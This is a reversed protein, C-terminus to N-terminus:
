REKERLVEPDNVEPPVARTIEEAAAKKLYSGDPLSRWASLAAPYDDRAAAAFLKSAQDFRERGKLHTLTWALAGDLDRRAWSGGHSDLFRKAAEPTGSAEAHKCVLEELGGFSDAHQAGSVFGAAVLDERLHQPAQDWVKRVEETRSGYDAAVWKLLGALFRTRQPSAPLGLAVDVAPLFFEDAVIPTDQDPVLMVFNGGLLGEARAPDNAHMVGLVSILAQQRLVPDNLEFVAAVASAMDGEAWRGFLLYAMFPKENGLDGDGNLWAFMEEPAERAWGSGYEIHGYGHGGYPWREDLYAEMGKADHGGKAPPMGLFVEREMARLTAVQRAAVSTPASDRERRGTSAGEGQEQHKAAPSTLWGLAM